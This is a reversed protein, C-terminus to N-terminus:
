WSATVDLSPMPTASPLLVSVSTFPLRVATESGRVASAAPTWVMPTASVWADPKFISRFIAMRTRGPWGGTLERRITDSLAPCDSEIVGSISALLIPPVPLTVAAIV